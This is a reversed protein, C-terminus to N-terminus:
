PQVNLMKVQEICVHPSIFYQEYTSYGVNIIQSGVSLLKYVRPGM